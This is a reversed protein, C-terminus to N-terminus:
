GGDLFLLLSFSVNYDWGQVAPDSTDYSDKWSDHFFDLSCVPLNVFMNKPPKKSKFFPLAQSISMNALYGGADQAAVAALAFELPTVGYQSELEDYGPVADFVDDNPSGIGTNKLFWYCTGNNDCTRNSIDEDLNMDSPATGFIPYSDKVIYVQEGQWTFSIAGSLLTGRLSRSFSLHKGPYMEDAFHGGKLVYPGSNTHDSYSYGVQTEDM